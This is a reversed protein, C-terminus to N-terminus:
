EGGGRRPAGSSGAQRYLGRAGTPLHNIADTLEAHTCLRGALAADMACVGQTLGGWRALDVVTDSVNSV